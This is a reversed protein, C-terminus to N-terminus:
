FSLGARHASAQWRHNNKWHPLLSGPSSVPWLHKSRVLRYVLASAGMVGFLCQGLRM